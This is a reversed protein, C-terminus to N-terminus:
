RRQEYSRIFGLRLLALKYAKEREEFTIMVKNNDMSRAKDSKKLVDGPLLTERGSHLM